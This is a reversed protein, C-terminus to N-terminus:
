ILNMITCRAKSEALSGKHAEVLEQHKAVMERREEQSTELACRSAKLDRDLEANSTHLAEREAELKRIMELAARLKAQEAELAAHATTQALELAADSDQM